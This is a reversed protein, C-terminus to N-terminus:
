NGNTDKDLKSLLSMSTDIPKFDKMGFRLFNNVYMIQFIFIKDSKKNSKYVLFIHTSM